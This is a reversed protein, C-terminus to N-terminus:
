ADREPEVEQKKADKVGYRDGDGSGATIRTEPIGAGGFGGRM